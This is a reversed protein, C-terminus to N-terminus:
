PMQSPPEQKAPDYDEQKKWMALVIAAIRRAITVQALNPKSGAELLREYGRKLPHDSMHTVSKAAGKFVAKLMPNRKRTLGRTQTVPARVWRKGERVWDASTRTVIGLGCYSWFQRKTRFREPTVVVAVVEAARIPGLGPATALRRIIPHKKAETRLREDAQDALKTLGDLEQSMLEALRRQSAGLKGLWKERTSAQYLEGQMGHMGRSRFIAKLRNKVRTVDRVMLNYGRVAERLERYRGAPKFVKTEITGVRLEEARAWADKSDSKQGQSEAPATVVLEEVHPELLEYLWESQTGEEICLHREGDVKRIAEVLERGSTSVVEERLKRGTAGMVAMTCSQMHVDLGIYRDMTMRRDSAM